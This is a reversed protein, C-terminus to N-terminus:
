EDDTSSSESPFDFSKIADINTEKDMDCQM